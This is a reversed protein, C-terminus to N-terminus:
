SRGTRISLGAIEGSAIDHSGDRDFLVLEFHGDERLQLSLTPDQDEGHLAVTIRKNGEFREVREGDIVVSAHVM